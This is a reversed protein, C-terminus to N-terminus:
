GRDGEGRAADRVLTAAEARSASWFRKDDVLLLVAALARQQSLQLAEVEALRAEATRARSLLDIISRECYEHVDPSSVGSRGAPPPPLTEPREGRANYGGSKPAEWKTM